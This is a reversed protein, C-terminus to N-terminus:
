ATGKGVGAVASGVGECGEPGQEFTVKETLSSKVNKDLSYSLTNLFWVSGSQTGLVSSKRDSHICLSREHVRHFIFACPRWGPGRADM